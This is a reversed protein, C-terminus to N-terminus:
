KEELTGEVQLMRVAAPLAVLGTGGDVQVTCGTVYAAADSALFVAMYAIEEPKGYRKLPIRKLFAKDVGPAAWLAQRVGETEILGPAIDMVRIGYRAWEVALTRSMATVAGKGAANHVNGPSGTFATNATINIIVGKKQKIMVKGAAQCCHFTGQLVIGIVSNWGNLSLNEAPVLFNGSANNVMIDLHGFAEVTKQVMAEVQAPDRVDVPVALARRGLKAIEAAAPEIHEMRRSAVVVDAGAKAMELAIAKGIGTGGGTIVAVKGKLATDSFIM